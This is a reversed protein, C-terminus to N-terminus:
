LILMADGFSFFRYSKDIAQKYANMLYDYGAFASVLFILSSKPLHFNTILADVIRFEFPPYIYLKTKGILKEPNRSISELTRVVTTGVAVVKNGRAKTKAIEELTNKSVSYYEEHIDYNRIDKEKVPRFTGLGVHLTVESFNIGYERLEQLLKETFHLGATPAAVAGEYKAYKTQYKNPDDLSKKIYPPLPIEGIEFIKSYFDEEEFELIRSGDELHDIVQCTIGDAFILKNGKKIKGGPKVLAKWIKESGDKELLLVEVKAGTEKKGHLRAPIVKTNNVVLLDGKKLYSKIQRFIAHEITRKNRDLVMLRCSDRPEVPEQAILEEPLDYNYNEINFINENM